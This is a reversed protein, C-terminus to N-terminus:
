SKAAGINPCGTELSTTSARSGRGWIYIESRAHQWSSKLPAGADSGWPNTHPGLLHETISRTDESKIRCCPYQSYKALRSSCFGPSLAWTWRLCRLRSSLVIDLESFLVASQMQKSCTCTCLEGESRCATTNGESRTLSKWWGAIIREEQTAHIGDGLHDNHVDSFM